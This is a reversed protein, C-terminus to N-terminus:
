EDDDADKGLEAGLIDAAAEILRENKKAPDDSVAFKVRQVFALPKILTLISELQERCHAYECVRDLFSGSDTLRVAYKVNSNVAESIAEREEDSFQLTSNEDLANGESDEGQIFLFLKECGSRQSDSAPSFKGGAFRGHLLDTLPLTWQPTFDLEREVLRIADAEEVGLAILAKVFAEDPSEGDEVPPMDVKIKAGTQVTYMGKCDVKKDSNKVEINPNKPQNKKQWLSAVFLKWLEANLEKAERDKKAELIDFLEKTPAFERFLAEIEPTLQITPRDKDKVEKTAPKAKSRFREALSLKKVPEGSTPIAPAVVAPAPDAKKTSKKQTTAM